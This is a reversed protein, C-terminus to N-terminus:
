GTLGLISILPFGLGSVFFPLDSTLQFTNKWGPRVRDLIDPFWSKPAAWPLWRAQFFRLPIAPACGACGERAHECFQVHANMGAWAMQKDYGSNREGGVKGMTAGQDNGMVLPQEIAALCLEIGFVHCRQM